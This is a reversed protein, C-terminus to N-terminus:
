PRPIEVLRLTEPDVRYAKENSLDQVDLHLTRLASTNHGLRAATAYARSTLYEDNVREAGPFGVIEHQHVIRGDSPDYLVCVRVSEPKLLTGGAIHIV